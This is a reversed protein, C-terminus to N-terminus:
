GQAIGLWAIGGPWQGFLQFVFGLFCLFAGILFPLARSREFKRLRDAEHASEAADGLYEQNELVPGIEAVGTMALMDRHEQKRRLKKQRESEWYDISTRARLEVYGRYWELTILGFGLMDLSIGFVSFWSQQIPLWAGLGM